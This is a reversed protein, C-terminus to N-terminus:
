NRLWNGKVFNFERSHFIGPRINFSIRSINLLAVRYFGSWYCPLDRLTADSSPDLSFLKIEKIRACHVVSPVTVRLHFRVPSQLDRAIDQISECLKEQNEWDGEVKERRGAIQHLDFSRASIACESMRALKVGRGEKCFSRQWSFLLFEVSFNHIEGVYWGCSIELQPFPLVEPPIFSTTRHLGWQM